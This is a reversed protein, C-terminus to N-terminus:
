TLKKNNNRLILLMAIPIVLIQQCIKTVVDRWDTSLDTIVISTFPIPIGYIRLYYLIVVAVTGVLIIVYPIRYQPFFVIFATCVMYVIYILEFLVFEGLQKTAKIKKNDKISKDYAKAEEYGHVAYIVM